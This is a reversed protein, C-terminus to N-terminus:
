LLFGAGTRRRQCRIRRDCRGRWVASGQYSTQAADDPLVELAASWLSFFNGVCQDQPTEETCPYLVELAHGLGKEIEDKVGKTVKAGAASVSDSAAELAAIKEPAGAGQFSTKFVNMTQQLADLRSHFVTTELKEVIDESIVALADCEPFLEIASTYLKQMETLNPGCKSNAQMKRGFDVLHGLLAQAAAVTFESPLPQKARSVDGIM